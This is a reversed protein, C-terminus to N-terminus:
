QSSAFSTQSRCTLATDNEHSGKHVYLFLMVYRGEREKLSENLMQFKEKHQNEPYQCVRRCCSVIFFLFSFRARWCSCVSRSLRSAARTIPKSVDSLEQLGSSEETGREKVCEVASHLQHLLCGRLKGPRPFFLAFPVRCSSSFCVLDGVKVNKEGGLDEVGTVTPESLM